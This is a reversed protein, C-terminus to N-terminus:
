KTLLKRSITTILKKDEGINKGMTEKQEQRTWICTHFQIVNLEVNLRSTPQKSETTNHIVVNSFM